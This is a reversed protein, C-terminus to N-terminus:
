KLYAYCLGVAPQHGCFHQANTTVKLGLYTLQPSIYSFLFLHHFYFILSAQVSENANLHSSLPSGTPKIPPSLRALLLLNFTTLCKCFLCLIKASFYRSPSSLFFSNLFQQRLSSLIVFQTFTLKCLGTKSWQLHSNVGVGPFYFPFRSYFDATHKYSQLSKTWSRQPPVYLALQAIIYPM